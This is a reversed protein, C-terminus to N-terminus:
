RPVRSTTADPPPAGGGDGVRRRRRRRAAAAALPPAASAALAIICLVQLWSWGAAYDGTGWHHRVLVLGAIVYSLGAIAPPVYGLVAYRSRNAEAAVCAVTTM